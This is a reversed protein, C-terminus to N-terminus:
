TTDYNYSVSTHAPKYHDILCEIIAAADAPTGVPLHLVWMATTGIGNLRDGVRNISVRFPTGYPKEEITVLNPDTTRDYGAPTLVTWALDIYYARSQGGQAAVRAALASQRAATGTPLSDCLPLGFVEEWEALLEDATAPYAELMLDYLRRHFRVAEVGLGGAMGEVGPNELAWIPGRPLVEAVMDRYATSDSDINILKSM